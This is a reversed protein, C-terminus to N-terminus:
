NNSKAENCSAEVGNTLITYSKKSQHKQLYGKVISFIYFYSENRFLLSGLFYIVIGSLVQIILLIWYRLGPIFGIGYVILSMGGALLLSPLIDKMQEWLSYHISKWNPYSNIVLCLLDNAFMGWAIAEPGFWITALLVLIGTTTKIIEQILFINSKGRAKIANLNATHIPYFVFTLCFIQLFITAPLWKASLILEIAKDAVVALGFMLPAIIYTSTKIARKTIAKIKEPSDQVNAMTPFLVSDLSTNINSILFNPIQKGRNYFALDEESYFKGVCLQRIQEYITNLMASAFLKWGYSFLQKLRKFSFSFSPKWHITFWLIITDITTNTLQQAVLSWVGFGHFAMWIGIVASLITGLLTAWFFKKFIIKRSVYAQEINKTGSVLLTIGLVRIVPTLETNNYFHAIYPACFFLILYLTICLVINFWFITSFDLQDADKKQILSNGMGGEIFVDLISIIVTVLAIVGFDAPDLVRALVISVIFTVISALFREALRWIINSAAKGSSSNAM